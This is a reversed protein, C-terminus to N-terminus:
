VFIKITYCFFTKAFVTNNIIENFLNHNNITPFTNIFVFLIYYLSWIVLWPKTVLLKNLLFSSITDVEITACSIGTHLDQFFTSVSPSYVSWDVAIQNRNSVRCLAQFGGDTLQSCQAVELTRGIHTFIIWLFPLKWM